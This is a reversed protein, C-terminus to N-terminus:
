IKEFCAALPAHNWLVESRPLAHVVVEALPLVLANYLFEEILKAGFNADHCTM